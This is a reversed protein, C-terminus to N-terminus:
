AEWGERPLARAHPLPLASARATTGRASDRGLSGVARLGAAPAAGVLERASGRDAGARGASVAGPAQARPRPRRQKGKDKGM